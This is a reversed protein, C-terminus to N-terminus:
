LKAHDSSAGRELSVGLKIFAGKKKVHISPGNRWLDKKLAKPPNKPLNELSKSDMFMVLFQYTFDKSELCSKKM